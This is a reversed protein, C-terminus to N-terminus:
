RNFKLNLSFSSKRFKLLSLSIIYTASGLLVGAILYSAQKILSHGSYSPMMQRVAILGTVAVGTAFILKYLHLGVSTYNIAMKNKLMFLLFLVKIGKSLVLALAIGLYGIKGILFWTLCMNLMVCVIGTFVPTRTDEHSFYFVVLITEIAFFIMGIAYIAVAGGTLATSYDNFAGRKFFLGVIEQSFVFFFGSLPLFIVLITTLHKSFLKNLQEKKSGNALESFYPFLVTSLIYPFVLVPLEVVKKAYSLAAISGEQLYSAFLNDVLSGTQAFSVGILLPWSLKWTDKLIAPQVQAKYYPYAKLLAVTQFVLKVVAAVLISWIMAYIGLHRGLVVLMVVIIFKFVLEAGAPWVFKKLANLAVSMLASLSLFICAPFAFRIMKAALASKAVSLGPALLHVTKSPYLCVVLSLVLTGIGILRGVTSLLGWAGKRDQETVARLFRPLFAPEIIERCFLFVSLIVTLIISYVDVAYGTGFYYALIIKEAYGLMRVGITVVAILLSSRVIPNAALKERISPIM